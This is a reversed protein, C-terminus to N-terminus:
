RAAALVRLLVLLVRLVTHVGQTPVTCYYPSPVVVSFTRYDINRCHLYPLWAPLREVRWKGSWGVDRKAWGGARAYGYRGFVCVRAKRGARLVNPERSSVCRCVGLRGRCAGDLVREVM